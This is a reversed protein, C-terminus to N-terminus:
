TNTKYIGNTLIYEIKDVLDDIYEDTIAEYGVAAVRDGMISSAGVLMASLVDDDVNLDIECRSKEDRIFNPFYDDSIYKYKEYIRQQVPDYRHRFYDASIKLLKPHHIFEQMMSRFLVRIFQTLTLDKLKESEEGSIRMKRAVIAYDIVYGYLDEKDEFYQYFSGKAIDAAAVIRSISATAYGHEAFEDVACDTIWQRKEGSLNLFTPKPM